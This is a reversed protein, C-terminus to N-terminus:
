RVLEITDFDSEHTAPSPLDIRLKNNAIGVLVGVQDDASDDAGVSPASGSYRHIPEGRASQAGLYVWVGNEPYLYGAMRQTGDKQFWIGGNVKSISCNFWSFVTYGSVGGLKAQRCRWHGLLANESVVHGAPGLTEQIAHFDGTGARSEAQSIAAARIQSLQALREADATSIQDRWGAWAPASIGMVALAAAAIIAKHPVRITMVM